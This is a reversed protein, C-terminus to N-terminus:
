KMDSRNVVQIAGCMSCVIAQASLTLATVHNKPLKIGINSEHLRCCDGWGFCSIREFQMEAVLDHSAHRVCLPTLSTRDTDRAALNDKFTRLRQWNPPSDPQVDIPRYFKLVSDAQRDSNLAHGYRRLTLLGGNLDQAILEACARKRSSGPCLLKHTLEM